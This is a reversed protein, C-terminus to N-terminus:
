KEKRANLHKQAVCKVRCLKVMQSVLESLVLIMHQVGNPVSQEELMPKMLVHQANQHISVNEM